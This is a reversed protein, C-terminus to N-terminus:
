PSTRIISAALLLSRRCRPYSRPRCDCPARSASATATLQLHYAPRRQRPHAPRELRHGCDCGFLRGGLSATRCSLIAAVARHSPLLRVAFNGEYAPWDRRLVEFLAILPPLSKRWRKRWYM